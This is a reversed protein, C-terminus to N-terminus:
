REDIAVYERAPEGVYVQRPRGIRSGPSEILEKWQAIWGPLRGIAFLATFIETPFGIARYILGSYFDVNPYLKRRVFYEDSLAVEELRQAVEFLAEDAGMTAIVRDAASKIITARPDFNRYVRHGFGMLRFDDNPNKARAVYKEVNGGDAVIQELMEVVEQNAGGHLPGSLADMGASVSAFLNAHSSGVMRVTATSCNQEHEAHLILLLELADAVVPDVEYPEAPVAFMMHLFNAAYGLDNRPYIYPQGISKKYAWAAITPIKALLRRISIEVHEANFPDLSDQYFTALARTASALVAMPHADRPFSDFFRRMEEHILTHHVIQDTFLELERRTPLHGYILLFSVELFNSREALQEIPIGRYRLVGREGDVYTIASTCAGTNAYGPDLTILGTQARLQSIDIGVDSDTGRVIPLDVSKDGYILRVSEPM